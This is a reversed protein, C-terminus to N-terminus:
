NKVSLKRILTRTLSTQTLYYFFLLFKQAMNEKRAKLAKEM